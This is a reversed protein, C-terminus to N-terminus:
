YSPDSLTYVIRRVQAVTILAALPLGLLLGLGLGAAWVGDAGPLPQGYGLRFLAGVLRCACVSVAYAAWFMLM